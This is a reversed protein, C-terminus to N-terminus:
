ATLYANPNHDRSTYGTAGITNWPLVSTSATNGTRTGPHETYFYWGAAAHMNTIFQRANREPQNAMDLSALPPSDRLSAM